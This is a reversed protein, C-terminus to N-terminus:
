WNWRWDNGVKNLTIQLQGVGNDSFLYFAADDVNHYCGRYNIYNVNTINTVNRYIIRRNDYHVYYTPRVFRPYSVHYRVRCKLTGDTYETNNIGANNVVAFKALAQENRIETQKTDIGASKLIGAAAAVTISGDPTTASASAFAVAAPAAQPVESRIGEWDAKSVVISMHEPRYNMDTQFAVPLRTSVGPMIMQYSAPFQADPYVRRSPIGNTFNQYLVVYVPVASQVHVYFVEGPAWRYTRPNVYRGDGLEFWVRIANTCGSISSGGGTYPVDVPAVSVFKGASKAHAMADDSKLGSKANASLQTFAKIAADRDLEPEAAEQQCLGINSVCLLLAALFSISKNM